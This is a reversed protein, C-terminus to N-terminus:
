RERTCLGARFSCLLQRARFPSTKCLVACGRAGARAPLARDASTFGPSALLGLLSWRQAEDRQFYRPSSPWAGGGSGLKSSLTEKEKQENEWWWRQRLHPRGPLATAPSLSGQAGPQSRPPAQGLVRLSALALDAANWPM